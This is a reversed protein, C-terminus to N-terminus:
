HVNSDEPVKGWGPWRDIHMRPFTPSIPPPVDGMVVQWILYSTGPKHMGVRRALEILAFARNFRDHPLESPNDLVAFLEETTMQYELKM